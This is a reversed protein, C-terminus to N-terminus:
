QSAGSSIPQLFTAAGFVKKIEAKTALLNDHNSATQMSFASEDAFM